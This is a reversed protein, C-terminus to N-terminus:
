IRGWKTQHLRSSQIGAFAARDSPPKQFGSLLCGCVLKWTESTTREWVNEGSKTEKWSFSLMNGAPFRFLQTMLSIEPSHGIHVFLISVWNLQFYCVLSDFKTWNFIKNEVSINFLELSLHDVEGCEEWVEKESNEEEPSHCKFTCILFGWQLSAFPFGEWFFVSNRKSM